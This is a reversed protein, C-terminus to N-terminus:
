HGVGGCPSSKRTAVANSEVRQPRASGQNVQEQNIYSLREQVGGSEPQRHREGSGSGADDGMLGAVLTSGNRGRQTQSRYYTAGDKPAYRSFM